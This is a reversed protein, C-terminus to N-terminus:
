SMDKMTLLDTEDYVKWRDPVPAFCKAPHKYICYGHDLITMFSYDSPDYKTLRNAAM